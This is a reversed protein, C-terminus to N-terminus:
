RIREFDLTLTQKNNIGRVYFEIVCEIANSDASDKIKVLELIVRPEYEAIVEAIKTEYYVNLLPDWNEFLLGRLNTGFEPDFPKDYKESLVLNYLSNKVADVDTRILIDDTFPHKTFNLNIDSYLPM